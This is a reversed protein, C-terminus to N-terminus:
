ASAVVVTLQGESVGVFVASAADTLAPLGIPKTTVKALEPAPSEVPVVKLSGSGAPEPMLQLRSVDESVFIGVPMKQATLPVAGAWVRLQPGLEVSVLSGKVSGAPSVM